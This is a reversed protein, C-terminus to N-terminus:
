RPQSARVGYSRPERAVRCLGRAPPDISRGGGPDRKLVADRRLGIRQM